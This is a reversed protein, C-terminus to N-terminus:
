SEDHEGSYHMKLAEDATIALQRKFVVYVARCVLCCVVPESNNQWGAIM